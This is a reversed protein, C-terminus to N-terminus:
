VLTLQAERAAPSFALGNVRAGGMIRPGSIRRTQATNTRNEPTFILIGCMPLHYMLGGRNQYSKGCKPCAHPRPKQLGDECHPVSARHYQLGGPTTYAKGCKDCAYPCPKEDRITDRRSPGRFAQRQSWLRNAQKPPTIRRIENLAPTEVASKAREQSVDKGSPIQEQLPAASDPPEEVKVPTTMSSPISGDRIKSSSPPPGEATADAAALIQTAFTIPSSGLQATRAITSAKPPGCGRGNRGEAQRKAWAKRMAASRRERSESPESCSGNKRRPGVQNPPTRETTADREVQSAGPKRTTLNILPYDRSNTSTSTSTLAMGTAQTNVQTMQYPSIYTTSTPTTTNPTLESPSIPPEKGTSLIVPYGAQELALSIENLPADVGCENAIVDWPKSRNTDNLTRHRYIYKLLSKSIPKKSKRAMHTKQGTLVAESSSASRRSTDLTMLVTDFPKYGSSENHQAPQQYSKPSSSSEISNRQVNVVHVPTTTPNYSASGPLPTQYPVLSSLTPDSEGPLLMQHSSKPPIHNVHQLSEQNVLAGFGQYNGNNSGHSVGGIGSKENRGITRPTRSKGVFNYGDGMSNVHSPTFRALNLIKNDSAKSLRVSERLLAKPYEAAGARKMSEVVLDWKEREFKSEM